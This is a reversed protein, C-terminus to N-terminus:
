VLNTEVKVTEDQADADATADATAAPANKKKQPETSQGSKKLSPGSQARATSAPWFLLALLLAFLLTAPTARM